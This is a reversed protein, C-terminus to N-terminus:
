VKEGQLSRPPPVLSSAPTAQLTSLSRQVELVGEQEGQAWTITCVTLGPCVGGAGLGVTLIGVCGM